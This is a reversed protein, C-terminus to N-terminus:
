IMEVEMEDSEDESFPATMSEYDDSYEEKEASSFSPSVSPCYM